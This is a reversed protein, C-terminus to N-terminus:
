PASRRYRAVTRWLGPVYSDLMSQGEAASLSISVDGVSMGTATAPIASGEHTTLSKALRAIALALTVPLTTESFGGEITVTAHPWSSSYAWDCAPHEDFVPTLSLDPTVYQLTVTDYIAVDSSVPTSVLPIAKPYAMGRPSVKVRETYIGLPLTRNLCEGLLSTADAVSAMVDSSASTSDGSLRVYTAYSILSM